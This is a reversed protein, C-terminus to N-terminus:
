RSLEFSERLYVSSNHKLRGVTLLKLQIITITNKNLCVRIEILKSMQIYMTKNKNKSNKM